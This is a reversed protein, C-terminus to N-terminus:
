TADGSYYILLIQKLILHWFLKRNRRSFSYSRGMHATIQSSRWLTALSFILLVMDMAQLKSLAGDWLVLSRSLPEPSPVPLLPRADNKTMSKAWTYLSAPASPLPSGLVLTCMRPGAKMLVFSALGRHFPTDRLDYPSVSSHSRRTRLIDYNERSRLLICLKM